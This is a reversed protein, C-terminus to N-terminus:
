QAALLLRSIVDQTSVVAGGDPLTITTNTSTHTVSGLFVGQKSIYFTGAGNGGGSVPLSQTGQMTNGSVGVVTERRIRWAKQGAFVTDDLVTTTTITRELIDGGADAQHNSTTDTTSLGPAADPPVAPLFQSMNDALKPADPDGAAPTRYSYHAMRGWTTMVGDVVTGKLLGVDPLKVPLNSGLTYADLTLHFRLTDTAKPALLLTFAQRATITYEQKQDGREDTRTIVTVLGYRYEGAAYRISQAPLAAALSAVLAAALAARPLPDCM